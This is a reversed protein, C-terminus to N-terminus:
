PTTNSLRVLGWGMEFDARLGDITNVVAHDFHAQKIFEAMFISKKDDTLFIKIEPTHVSDPFEQFIEHMRRPDKSLIELLRAGAYMGDDFGYWREKFFIHGSLEGALPSDIKRMQSKIFSHGTKWMIPKGGAKKIVDALYRTCKVDFLIEANPQRSLVDQAFLMLLRDAWIIEGENTIVGLRDGDGDFALGVDAQHSIVAKQLDLLNKEVSPDPHHNPFAGDVECFLEIVECGLARFLQPAIKGTVGNGADIVIKLAKSLQIKKTVCSIYTSIIDQQNITGTGFIFDRALITQYLIQIESEDLAIGNFVIKLGNYDSPNHSGTLMVGSTTNLLHTAYYLLPTPVIGIDVIEMGSQLLGASLAQILAPSSLRGDRAIIIKKQQCLTMRAGIALGIAYVVNPTLETDVIGRIDYARFIDRSLQAPIAYPLSNSIEM